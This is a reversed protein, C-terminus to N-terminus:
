RMSSGVIVGGNCTDGHSAPLLSTRGHGLSPHTHDSQSGPPHRVDACADARGDGEARIGHAHGAPVDAAVDGPRHTIEEGIRQLRRQVEDDPLSGAWCAYAGALILSGPLTPHRGYLALALAGGFSIGLVHPRRLGLATLFGALCDAYDDMRFSVPPNAFRRLRSRGLRRCHVRRCPRRVAPARRDFGFGGHLLVLPDGSGARRYTIKLGSVEVVDM